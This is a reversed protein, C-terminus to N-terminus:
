GAVMEELQELAKRQDELSAHAYVAMTVQVDAHGVIAQVIHPPVKLRLLLTVCSHRLDHFRMEGLGAASRIPYWTRRLNDPEIPTGIETTFVYGTDVWKAGALLREKAQQRKHSALAELCVKILPVTRKSKKTKPTVAQLAGDVRQLTRRVELTKEVQDIDAWKLGLLEGRRLGMYLAMVYLAYLRTPKAAKLLLRAQEETAGRNVDYQAGQVQVLKAVNRQLVEERVAAQLANRLVAHVQEVLRDSPHRECCQGVACCRAKDGRRADYGHKCCLCTNRLRKMFLRVDAGTLKHLKKKGIDPILHVRAVLEYGQYTKPKKAPKVIHELWYRLFAEVQWNTAEAPIGQDSDTQLKRLKQVVVDRDKSSVEKRATTGDAQLVYAAGYWRDKSARYYISGDGNAAKM